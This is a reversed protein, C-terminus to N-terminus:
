ATAVTFTHGVSLGSAAWRYVGPTLEICEAEILGGIRQSATSLAISDAATDNLAILTDAVPAAVLLNQDVLCRFRYWWGLVGKSPPPLTFTVAGAAGANTYVTGPADGRAPNIQYSATKALTRRELRTSM